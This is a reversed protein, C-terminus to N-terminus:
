LGTEGRLSPSDPDDCGLGVGSHPSILTCGKLDAIDSLEGDAGTQPAPPVGMVGM